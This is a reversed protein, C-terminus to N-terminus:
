HPTKHTTLSPGNTANLAPLNYAIPNPTVTQLFSFLIRTNHSQQVALQLVDGLVYM